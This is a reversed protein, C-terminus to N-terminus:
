KDLLSKLWKRVEGKGIRTSAKETLADELIKTIIPEYAPHEREILDLEESNLEETDLREQIENNSATEFFLEVAEVLNDKAQEITKGILLM